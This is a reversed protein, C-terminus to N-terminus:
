ICGSFTRENITTVGEPIIISTLSSCDGFAWNGIYNLSSPLDISPLNSCGNFAYAGISTVGDLNSVSRLNSCSYFAYSGISTATTPLVVSKIKTDRLFSGGFVNDESHYGQYYMYNNAVISADELDLERLRTMKNRIVMMDYSNITGSVKLKVVDGLNAEGIEAALASSSPLADLTVEVLNAYSNGVIIDSYSTWAARYAEVANNPVFFINGRDIAYNGITCPTADECYIYGSIGSFASNGIATVGEPINISTLSSCNCFARDGIATVGEPINISTLSSCNCFAYDGIATVGEPLTVSTISSNKFAAIPIQTVGEPIEVTTVLTNNLYLDVDYTTADLPSSTRGWSIQLYKKIDKIYLSRIERCYSFAGDGISTVSEPINISTLSWCYSFAAQGISTVSEPINISTLSSCFTFTNTGISTVGEPINISTLSTCNFFAQLGISTVGEPMNISTLNRCELFAYDGISTVTYATEGIYVISPIVLNTPITGSIGTVTANEGSTSFNWATGNADTWSEASMSISVCCMLLTILFHKTKM